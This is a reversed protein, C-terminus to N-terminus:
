SVRTRPSDEFPSPGLVRERWAAIRGAIGPQPIRVRVEASATPSAQSWRGRTVQAPELGLRQAVEAVLVDAAAGPAVRVHVRVSRDDVDVEARLWDLARVLVDLDHSCLVAAWSSVDALAVLLGAGQTFAPDSWRQDAALGAAHGTVWAIPPSDQTPVPRMQRLHRVGRSRDVDEVWAATDQATTGLRDAIAAVGHGARFLARARAPRPDSPDAPAGLDAPDGPDAPDGSRMAPDPVPRGVVSLDPVSHPAVVRRARATLAFPVPAAEPDLLSPQVVDDTM